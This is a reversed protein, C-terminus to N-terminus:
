LIKLLILIILNPIIALFIEMLNSGRRKVGNELATLTAVRLDIILSLKQVHNGIKIVYKIKMM